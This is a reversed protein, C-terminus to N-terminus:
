AVPALMRAREVLPRGARAAVLTHVSQTSSFGEQQSTPGVILGIEEVGHSRTHAGRATAVSHLRSERRHCDVAGRAVEM